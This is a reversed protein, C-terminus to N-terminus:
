QFYRSCNVLGPIPGDGNNSSFWYGRFWDWGNGAGQGRDGKTWVYWGPYRVDRTLKRQCVAWNRGAYLLADNLGDVNANWCWKTPVYRGSVPERVTPPNDSGSCYGPGDVAAVSAALSEESDLLSDDPEEICAGLLAICLLSTMVISRHM